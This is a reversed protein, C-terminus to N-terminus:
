EMHLQLSISGVTQIEEPGCAHQAHLILKKAVDHRGHAKFYVAEGFEAIRVVPYQKFRRQYSSLGLLFRNLLWTAHKVM